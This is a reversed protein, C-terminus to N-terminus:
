VLTASNVPLPLLAGDARLSSIRVTEDIASIDALYVMAPIQTRSIFHLQRLAANTDPCTTACRIITANCGALAACVARAMALRERLNTQPAFKFELIRGVTIGSAEESIRTFAWGVQLSGRYFRFPLFTGMERYGETLWEFFEVDYTAQFGPQTPMDLTRRDFAVVPINRIPDKNHRPRPQFLPSFVTLGIKALWGKLGDSYSIGGPHGLVRASLPLNLVPAVSITKFGLRPMFEITDASGGLAVLPQGRQMMAKMVRIGIGSGRCEPLTAWAYTEACELPTDNVLYTRAFVGLVALWKGGDHAVLVSSRPADMFLWQLFNDVEPFQWVRRNFDSLGQLLAKNLLDIKSM